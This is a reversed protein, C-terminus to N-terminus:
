DRLRCSHVGDSDSDTDEYFQGKWKNQTSTQGKLKNRKECRLKYIIRKGTSGDLGAKYIFFSVNHM